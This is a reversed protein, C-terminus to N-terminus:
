GILWDLGQLLALHLPYFVYFFYKTNLQGRKGSYLLLLPLVLLSYWQVGGLDLALLVLGVT